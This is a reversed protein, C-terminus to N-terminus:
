QEHVLGFITIKNNQQMAQLFLFDEETDININDQMIYPVTKPPLFTKDELIRETRTVYIAGNLAYVKPLSQRPVESTTGELFPKIYGETDISKLKYPHPEELITVSVSADAEERQILEIMSVIDEPTRLPSTPQLLVVYDYSTDLKGILDIIADISKASDTALAEPRLGISKAGAAIAIEEYAVCDTSIYVDDILPCACGVSVALELLTKGEIKAINKDPFGKSGCRAPVIALVKM